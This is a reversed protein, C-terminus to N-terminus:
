KLVFACQSLTLTFRHITMSNDQANIQNSMELLFEPIQGMNM